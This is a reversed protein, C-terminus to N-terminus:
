LHFRVLKGLSVAAQFPAETLGPVPHGQAASVRIKVVLCKHTAPKGAAVGKRRRGHRFCKRDCTQAHRAPRVSRPRSAACLAVRLTGFIRDRTKIVQGMQLGVRPILTHPGKPAGLSPRTPVDADAERRHTSSPSLRLRGRAQRLAKAGARVAARLARGRGHTAARANTRAGPLAQDGTTGGAQCKGSNTM